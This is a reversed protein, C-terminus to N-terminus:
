SRFAILPFISPTLDLLIGSAQGVNCDTLILDFTLKTFFDRASATQKNIKMLSMWAVYTDASSFFLHMLSVQMYLWNSKVLQKVAISLFSHVFVM